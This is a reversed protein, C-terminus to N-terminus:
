MRFLDKLSSDYTEVGEIWLEDLEKILPQPYVDINNRSMKKSNSNSMSRYPNFGNTGLGLHVNRPELAFKPYLQDFSRWAKADKLHRLLEDLNSQLYNRKVMLVKQNEDLNKVINAFRDIKTYNLGLNYIVKKEKYFSNPINAYEFADKLLELIMTMEKDTVGTEENEENPMNDVFEYPGEYSNPEVDHLRNIGFADNIMSLVPNGNQLPEVIEKTSRSTMTEYTEGHWIWVKYNKPFQKCILHDRVVDRTEWKNCHCKPCPCRIADNVSQNEFAFDLFKNLGDLYKVTNQPM